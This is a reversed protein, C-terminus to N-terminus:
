DSGRGTEVSAPKPWGGNTLSAASECCSAGRLRTSSRPWRCSKAAARSTVYAVVSVDLNAVRACAIPAMAESEAASAERKLEAGYSRPQDRPV